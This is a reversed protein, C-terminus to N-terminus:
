KKLTGLLAEIPADCRLGRVSAFLARAKALYRYVTAESVHSSLSFEIVRRSIEGRRVRRRSDFCYVALVAQAIDPRGYETLLRLTDTAALIDLLEPAADSVAREAVIIAEDPAGEYAKLTREYIRDAAQKYTPCGSAAWFRFAETAYDRIYDKKM